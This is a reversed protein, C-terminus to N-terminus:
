YPDFAQQGPVNLYGTGIRIKARFNCFKVFVFIVMLFGACVLTSGAIM